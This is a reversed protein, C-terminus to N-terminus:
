SDSTSGTRDPTGCPLINPGSNNRINCEKDLKWFTKTQQRYWTSYFSIYRQNQLTVPPSSVIHKVM